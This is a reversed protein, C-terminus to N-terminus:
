KQKHRSRKREEILELARRLLDESISLDYVWDRPPMRSIDEVLLRAKGIKGGKEQINQIARLLAEAPDEWKIDPNEKMTVAVSAEKQGTMAGRAVWVRRLGKRAAEPQLGRPGSMRCKVGMEIFKQFDAEPIRLLKAMEVIMPLAPPSSVGREMQSVVMKHM